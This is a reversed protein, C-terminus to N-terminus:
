KNNTHTFVKLIYTIGIIPGTSVFLVTVWWAASETGSRLGGMRLLERLKKEKEYTRDTMM